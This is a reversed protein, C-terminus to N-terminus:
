RTKPDRGGAGGSSPVRVFSRYHDATYYVEGGKGIVVRQPGVKQGETPVVFERYYGPSQKPLLGERNQFVTGDNRHPHSEGRAIRALTDAVVVTITGLAGVGILFEMRAFDAAPSAMNGGSDQIVWPMERLLAKWAFGMDRGQAQRDIIDMALQGYYLQQADSLNEAFGNWGLLGTIAQYDKPGFSIGVKAAEKGFRGDPDFWNVPDGNAFAYLSMDSGQGLPDPSLFRGSSPEYYRAGLWYFGTPDIRRTRWAAAEAARVPDALVEARHNPLPGYSGVRTAVWEVRQLPGLGTVTAIVNGFTDSVVAKVLFSGNKPTLIAELGGTGNWGGYRGDLDPGHLKWAVADGVLVGIELFEHQPDFLSQTITPAGSAGSNVVLQHITSLRRGLGDYVASWDYGDNASNRESVKILRNWADWTLTQVRGDAFTRSTINGEGDYASVIATLPVNVTFSNTATATYQGSPHVAHAEFAQSGADLTLTKSWAGISDAWGPHTARGHSSGNVWLQVFDAGLSAGSTPVTRGGANTEDSLVRAFSDINGSSAVRGHWSSPAGNGVKAETRIGLGTAGHDFTFDISTTQGPMPSFQESELQGRSNYGYTRSENWAGAGSRTVSYNDLTSNDRWTQTETQITQNLAPLTTTRQKIRGLGDRQTITQHRWLNSRTVLLGATSYSFQASANALGSTKLLGDARYSFNFAGPDASGNFGGPVLHTRRGAANWGQGFSSHASNGVAISEATIEGYSGIERSVVTTPGAAQNPSSQEVTELVGRKDYSFSTTSDTEPAIGDTVITSPRLFDDYSFTRVIGRPDTTTNLLGAWLAHNAPHYTHAYVRTEQQGNVLSSRTPRGASDYVTKAILMGQPSNMRRELLQGAANHVFETIHTDPLTQTALHGLANYTTTTLRGLADRFTEPYGGADFTQSTYTGDAFRTLVVQGTSNPFQTVTIASTGSGETSVISRHDTSYTQTSERVITGNAERVESRTVRGLADHTTITREGLGNETIHVIGAADYFYSTARQASATTGAPGTKSKVRDLGDYTNTFTAGEADNFSTLNGRRDLVRTESALITGNAKKLTRTTTRNVEDYDTEWYSGNRLIEKKVRGDARYRWQEVSGDANTRHRPQGRSNYLTTTTGNLVSTHVHVLGGPEYTFSEVSLVAVGSPLSGDYSRAALQDAEFQALLAPTHTADFRRTHTLRGLSDYQHTTAHNRSDVALVLNGFLDHYFNSTATDEGAPPTEVGTGDAKARVLRVDTQALRGAEDYLHEVIDEDGPRPGNTSQVEGNLTYTTESEAVVTASEDKVTKTRPRSRLDYTFSTVRNAADTISEIERRSTPSFTLTVDPDATGTRRTESTKFGTADYDFESVAADASGFAVTQKELLGKAFITNGGLTGTREGYEYRDTRIVTNTASEKKIVDTPLRPYNSDDYHFETTIGSVADASWDPLDLLNYEATVVHEETAPTSPDGDLDGIIKTERINGRADYKYETVLGRPDTVKKLARAYAGTTVDPSPYWEKLTTRSHPEKIATVLGNSHEYTTQRGYADTIVTKNAVSYDFSANRVLVGPRTPDVTARQETVRRMGDYDNELVRGGPKTERILLHGFSESSPPEYDYTVETDDPFTVSKLDGSDYGYIVLRGDSAEAEEIAGEASYRLELASGNSSTISVIRGYDPSSANTGYVFYHENGHPDTEKELYPRERTLNGIPFSRVLYIATHGNRRRWTFRTQGSAVTREITTGIYNEGELVRQLGPNDAVTLEWVESTGVRRYVLVSGESTALQITALDSSPIVYSVHRPLWGYGFENQAFNRSSYTRGLQIPFPGAIELDVANVYFEGTVPNVPDSVFNAFDGLFRPGSLDGKEEGGDLLPFRVLRETDKRVRTESGWAAGASYIIATESFIAVTGPVGQAIFTGSRTENYPNWGHYFNQDTGGSYPASSIIYRAQDGWWTAGVYASALWDVQIRAVGNQAPLPTTMFNGAVSNGAWSASVAGKAMTAMACLTLALIHVRM